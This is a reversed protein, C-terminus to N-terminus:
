VCAHKLSHRIILSSVITTDHIGHQCFYSTVSYIILLSVFINDYTSVTDYCTFNSFKIFFVYHVCIQMSSRSSSLYSSVIINGGNWLILGIKKYFLYVLYLKVLSKSFSDPVMIIHLYWIYIYKMVFRVTNLKSQVYLCQKRFDQDFKVYNSM